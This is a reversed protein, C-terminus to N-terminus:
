SHPSPERRGDYWLELGERKKVMKSGGIACKFLLWFLQGGSYMRLKRASTVVPQRVVVFRGQSKLAQSIWVEEGAFYREDFGGVAEFAQRTAYM